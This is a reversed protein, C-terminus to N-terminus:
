IVQGVAGAQRGTQQGVYEALGRVPLRALRRRVRVGRVRPVGVAHQEGVRGRQGRLGVQGAGGPVREARDGSVEGVQDPVGLVRPVDAGVGVRPSGGPQEQRHQGGTM